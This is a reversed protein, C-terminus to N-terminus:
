TEKPQQQARAPNCTVAHPDAIIRDTPPLEYLM